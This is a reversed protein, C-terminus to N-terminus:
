NVKAWGKPIIGNEILNMEDRNMDESDFVFDDKTIWRNLNLM